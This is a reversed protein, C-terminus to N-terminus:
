LHQINRVKKTVGRYGSTNNLRTSKAEPRDYNIWKLNKVHNNTVDNDIHELM